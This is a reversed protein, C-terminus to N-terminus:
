CTVHEHMKMCVNKGEKKKKEKNDPQSTNERERERERSYVANQCAFHTFGSQAPIMKLIRTRRRRIGDRREVNPEM